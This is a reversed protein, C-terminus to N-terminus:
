GNGSGCDERAVDSLPVTSRLIFFGPWGKLGMEFFRLAVDLATLWDYGGIGQTKVALGVGGGDDVLDDFAQTCLLM